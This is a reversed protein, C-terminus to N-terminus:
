RAPHPAAARQLAPILEEADYLGDYREGNIFFTPTGNVGSRLGSRVDEKIRQDFRRTRMDREFEELNLGLIGAYEWLRIDELADKDVWNVRPDNSVKGTTPNTYNNQEVRFLITKGVFGGISDFETGDWGTALQLQEYNLLKTDDSFEDKSKFLVLYAVTEEDFSSWDVYGPAELQFHKMEEPSDIWKKMAKLRAVWQPFGNKTLGLGSEKIEGVFTGISDIKGSM